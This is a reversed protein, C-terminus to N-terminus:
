IGGRLSDGRTSFDGQSRRLHSREGKGEFSNRKPICDGEGAWIGFTRRIGREQKAQSPDKKKGGACGLVGKESTFVVEKELCKRKGRGRASNETGFANRNRGEKKKKRWIIKQIPPTRV